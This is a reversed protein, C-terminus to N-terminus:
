LVYKILLDEMKKKDNDSIVLNTNSTIFDILEDQGNNALNFVKTSSKNDIRVVANENAFFVSDKINYNLGNDKLLKSLRYTHTRVQKIPNYFKKSYNNGNRSLKFQILERDDSTGKITGNMNKTEVIFIGNNGLIVTDIQSTKGSEDTIELDSIISYSDPLKSLLRNTIIEGKAGTDKKKIEASIKSGKIAKPITYFLLIGTGLINLIDSELFAIIVLVVISILLNNRNSVSQDKLELVESELHNKNNLVKAM